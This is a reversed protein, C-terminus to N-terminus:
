RREKLWQIVEDYNFLFLRKLKIRPMGLKIYRYLTNKHIGLRECIENTNIM